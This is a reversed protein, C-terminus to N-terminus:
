PRCERPIIWEDGWMEKMRLHLGYAKRRDEETIEVSPKYSGSSEGFLKAMRAHIGFLSIRSASGMEELERNERELQDTM